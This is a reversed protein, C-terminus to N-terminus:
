NYLDSINNLIYITLRSYYYDYGYLIYHTNSGNYKAVNMGYYLSLESDITYNNKELISTYTSVSTYSAYYINIEVYPDCNEKKYRYGFYYYSSNDLSPVSYGLTSETLNDPWYETNIPVYSYAFVGLCRKEEQEGFMFQIEVGQTSSLIKNAYYVNYSVYEQKEEDYSLYNIIELSYGLSQCYTPYDTFSANLTDEDEYYTYIAFATFGYYDTFTEYTYEAMSEFYPIETGLENVFQLALEEGWPSSSVDISSTETGPLVNSAGTSSSLANASCSTLFISFLTVLLFRRKM